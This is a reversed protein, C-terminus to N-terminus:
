QLPWTHCGPAADPLEVGVEQGIGRPTSDVSGVSASRAQDGDLGDASTTHDRGEILPRLTRACLKVRELFTARRDVYHRSSIWWYGGARVHRMLRLQHRTFTATRLPRLMLRPMVCLPALLM